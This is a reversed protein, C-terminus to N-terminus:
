IQDKEASFWFSFWSEFNLLLLFDLMWRWNWCMGIHCSGHVFHFSISNLYYIFWCLHLYKSTKNLNNRQMPVCQNWFFAVVLPLVAFGSWSGLLAGLSFSFGHGFTDVVGMVAIPHRCHKGINDLQFWIAKIPNYIREPWIHWRDLMEVNDTERMSRM